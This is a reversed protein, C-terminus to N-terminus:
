AHACCDVGASLVGNSTDGKVSRQRLASRCVLTGSNARVVASLLCAACTHLVLARAESVTKGSGSPALLVTDIQKLLPQFSHAQVPLMRDLQFLYARSMRMVRVFCVGMRVTCNYVILAIDNRAERFGVLDWNIKDLVERYSRRTDKRMPRVRARGVGTAHQESHKACRDDTRASAAVM